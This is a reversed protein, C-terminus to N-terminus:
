KLADRFYGDIHRKQWGARPELRVNTRLGVLSRIIPEPIPMGKGRSTLFHGHVLELLRIRAIVEKINKVSWEGMGINMTMLILTEVVPWEPLTSLDEVDKNSARLVTASLNYNLSM